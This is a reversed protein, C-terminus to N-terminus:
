NDARRSSELYQTLQKGRTESLLQCNIIPILGLELKRMVRDSMGRRGMIRGSRDDELLLSPRNTGEGGCSLSQCFLNRCGGVMRKKRLYGESAQVM